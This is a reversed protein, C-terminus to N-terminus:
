CRLVRVRWTDEAEEGRHVDEDGDSGADSEADEVLNDVITEEM